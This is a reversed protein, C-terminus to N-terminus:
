MEPRNRWQFLGLDDPTDYKDGAPHIPRTDRRSDIRKSSSDAETELQAKITDFGM